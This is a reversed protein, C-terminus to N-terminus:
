IRNPITMPDFVAMCAKTRKVVPKGSSGDTWENSYGVFQEFLTSTKTYDKQVALGGEADSALIDSNNVGCITGDGNTVVWHGNWNNNSPSWIHVIHGGLVSRCVRRLEAHDAATIPRDWVLQGQGFLLDCGIKGNPSSNQQFWRMSVVGSRVLWGQVGVYCITGMGVTDHDTRSLKLNGPLAVQNPRGAYAALQVDSARAGPVIEFMRIGDQIDAESKTQWHALSVQKWNPHLDTNTPNVGVTDSNGFAVSCKAWTDGGYYIRQCMLLARLAHRKDTNAGFGPDDEGDARSGLSLEKSIAQRKTDSTVITGIHTGVLGTTTVADLYAVTERWRTLWNKGFM